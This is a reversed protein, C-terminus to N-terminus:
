FKAKADQRLSFAPTVSSSDTHGSFDMTTASRYVVGFSHQELPQWRLGAGVGPAFADGKFHFQDNGAFPSLGQKLDTRAYNLTPGVALSLSPGHYSGVYPPESKGEANRGGRESNFHAEERRSRGGFIEWAIVPQVTLYQVRGALAASRFGTTEPWKMSLGFPAYVGVGVSLPRQPLSCTYYLQPVAEYARQSESAAGAPSRYSTQYTLAYAGVRFQQGPLQTIDAPNYYLASPNDATATFANGRATAFADQDNLRIGEAFASASSLALSVFLTLTRTQM